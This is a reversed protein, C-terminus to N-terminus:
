ISEPRARFEQVLITLRQVNGVIICGKTEDCPTLFRCRARIICKAAPNQKAGHLRANSHSGRLCGRARKRAMKALPHILQPTIICTNQNADKKMSAPGLLRTSKNSSELDLLVIAMSPTEFSLYEAKYRMQGILTACISGTHMNGIVRQIYSRILASLSDAMYVVKTPFTSM